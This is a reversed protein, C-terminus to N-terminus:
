DGWLVTARWLQWQEGHPSRDAFFVETGVLTPHVGSEGSAVLPHLKTAQPKGVFPLNVGWLNGSGIQSAQPAAVVVLHCGSASCEMALDTATNPGGVAQSEGELKGDAALYQVFIAGGVPAPASQGSTADGVQSGIYAVLAAATGRPGAGLALRPSHEHGRSEGLSHAPGLLKGDAEGLLALYLDAAGSLGADRADSWVCFVHSGVSLLEVGSPSRAGVSIRRAGGISNLNEDLREAFVELEGLRGDVWALLYGSGVRIAAVDAIEGPSHTLMKQQLRKGAPDVITAFVQPVAGDIASWALLGRAGSPPVLRVGGLSRARYSITGRQLTVSEQEESM